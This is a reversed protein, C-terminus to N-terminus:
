YKICLDRSQRIKAHLAVEEDYIEYEILSGDKAGVTIKLSKNGDERINISLDFSNDKIHDLCANIEKISIKM